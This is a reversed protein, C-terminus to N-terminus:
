LLQSIFSLSIDFNSNISKFPMFLEGELTKQPNKEAENIEQKTVCGNIQDTPNYETDSNVIKGDAIDDIIKVELNTFDSIQKITLSSHGVLWHACPYQNIIINRALRMKIYDIESTNKPKKDLPTFLNGEKDFFIKSFFRTKNIGKFKLLRSRDDFRYCVKTIPTGFDIGIQIIKESYNNTSKEDRKFFSFLNM